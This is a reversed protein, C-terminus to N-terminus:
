MLVLGTADRKKGAEKMHSMQHNFLDHTISKKLSSVAKSGCFTETGKRQPM